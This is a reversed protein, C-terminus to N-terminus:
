LRVSAPRLSTGDLVAEPDFVRIDRSEGPLLDFYEDSLRLRDDLQFHVAHAFTEASVRFRLEGEEHRVESISLNAPEEPLKMEIFDCTRLISPTVNHGGYDSDTPRVFYVGGQRDYAGLEFSGATGRSFPAMEFAILRTDKVSGDFSVYGVELMGGLAAPTDNLGRIFAQGNDGERVIWKVPALARKVGYYSIKRTLYYDVITWGVEGWTDNYMWFLGGACEENYRMAELSYGLMLSQCLGAYLLYSGIDAEATQGYHKLIGAAVTDKEFTNTHLAWNRGTRELPADGIYRITSSKRCPGVYGYESVFKSTVKDYEEPIVRVNIDPNMMCDKWHHRDGMENGNPHAGGYPSSNWYPVGPCNRKVIRPAIENYVIAGGYFQSQRTNVWWEGFGWHNENNGCWLVISPHNRLHITQYDLEREAEGRFWELDDRYKGCSFMFDHWIMIGQADCQEYFADQEYLGGGWIRLMNFNAERAESVLREIKEEAVRAYISDAPVWNGGKCFVPVGNVELTFRRENARLRDTNWRVTRIGFKVTREELQRGEVLVSVMATYLPQEGMGNPWWLKPDALHLPLIYYNLGSNLNFEELSDHIVEKGYAVVVRVVAEQQAFPNPNRLEAELKLEAAAHGAAISGTSVFVDTISAEYTFELWASKTIGCTAVRPGWDWGYAYQPKRVM